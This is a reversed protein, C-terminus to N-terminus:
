NKVKWGRKKIVEVVSAGHDGQVEICGDKVTGGSGCRQKLQKCLEALEAAALPVGSVVTVGKGKRGKIELRVRVVGDAVPVVADKCRCAASPQGCAPCM